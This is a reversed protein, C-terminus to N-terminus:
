KRKQELKYQLRKAFWRKARKLRYTVAPETIGLKGAMEAYFGRYVGHTYQTDEDRLSFLKIWAKFVVFLDPRSHRMERMTQQVIKEELVDREDPSIAELEEKQMAREEPSPDPAPITDEWRPM